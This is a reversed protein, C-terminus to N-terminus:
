SLINQDVNKLPTIVIWFANPSLQLQFGKRILFTKLPSIKEDIIGKVLESYNTSPQEKTFVVVLMQILCLACVVGYILLGLFFAANNGYDISIYIMFFAVTILALCVYTLTDFKNKQDELSLERGRHKVFNNSIEKNIARLTTAVTDTTEKDAKLKVFDNPKVVFGLGDPLATIVVSNPTSSPPDSLSVAIFRTTTNLNQIKNNLKITKRKM